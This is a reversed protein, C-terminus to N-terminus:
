PSLGALARTFREALAPDALFRQTWSQQSRLYVALSIGLRALATEPARGSALERTAAVFDEFSLLPEASKGDRQAAAFATAFLVLLPPAEDGAEDEAKSFRASWTAEVGDWGDEDLGEETLLRERGAPSAAALEAAFRAYASVDSELDRAALLDRSYVPAQWVGGGRPSLPTREALHHRGAGDEGRGVVIAGIELGRM